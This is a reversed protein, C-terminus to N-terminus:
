TPSVLVVPSPGVDFHEADAIATAAFFEALDAATTLIQGGVRYHRLRIRQGNRAQIGYRCWRWVSAPHRRKRKRSKGAADTTTAAPCYKAAETLSLFDIAPPM